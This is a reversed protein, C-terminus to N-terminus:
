EPHQNQPATARSERRWVYLGSGIIVLAGLITYLDPFEGFIVLGWFTAIVTGIYGFPAVVSAEAMSFSRIVCFQAFTGLCGLLLFMPMDLAAVPHWFFPLALSSAAAGFVAAHLMATSPGELQGVKRTLLGNAAFCAAAALPLFAAPSFVGSGPRIIITAGILAAIVAGIRHPGIREGLFLVAGLTILVPSLDALVTAEALGIYRLSIFFFVTSGLQCASRALHTFPYPSRLTPFFKRPGLILTVLVAQGVFRAWVVQPAPYRQMLGKALADMSAFCAIALLMLLIGKRTAAASQPKPM